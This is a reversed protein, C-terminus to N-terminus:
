GDDTTPQLALHTLHPRAFLHGLGYQREHQHERHAKQGVVNEHQPEVVVRPRRLLVVYEPVHQADDAKAQAVAVRADVRDSQIQDAARKAFVKVPLQEPPKDLRRAARGGLGPVAMHAALVAGAVFVADDGDVFGGGHGVYVHARELLGVVRVGCGRHERASNM